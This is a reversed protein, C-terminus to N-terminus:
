LQEGAQIRQWQKAAALMATATAIVENANDFEWGDGGLQVQLNQRTPQLEESLEIYLNDFDHLVRSHLIPTGDIDFDTSEAWDPRPVGRDTNLEWVRDDQDRRILGKHALRVSAALIDNDTVYPSEGKLEAILEAETRPAVSILALVSPEFNNTIKTNLM